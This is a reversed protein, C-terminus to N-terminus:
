PCFRKLAAAVLKADDALASKRRPQKLLREMAARELGTVAFGAAGEDQIGRRALDERVLIELEVAQRKAEEEDAVAKGDYWEAGYQESDVRAVARYGTEYSQIITTIRVLPSRPRKLAWDRSDRDFMGRTVNNKFRDHVKEVLPAAAALYAARAAPDEPVAGLEEVVWPLPEAPKMSVYSYYADISL